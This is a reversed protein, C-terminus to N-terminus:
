SDEGRTSRQAQPTDRSLARPATCQQTERAATLSKQALPVSLVLVLPDRTSSEGKSHNEVASCLTTDSVRTCAAHSSLSEDRTHRKGTGLNMTQATSGRTGLNM